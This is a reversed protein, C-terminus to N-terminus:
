FWEFSFLKSISNKQTRKKQSKTKQMFFCRDIPLCEKKPQGVKLHKKEWEKKITQKATQLHNAEIADSLIGLHTIQMGKCEIITKYEIM